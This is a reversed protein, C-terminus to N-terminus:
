IIEIPKDDTLLKTRSYETTTMRYSEAINEIYEYEEQTLYLTIRKVRKDKEDKLIMGKKVGGIKRTPESGSANNIFEQLKDSDINEAKQKLNVKKFM